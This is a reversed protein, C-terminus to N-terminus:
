ITQKICDDETAKSYGIYLYVSNEEQANNFNEKEWSYLQIHEYYTGKHSLFELTAKFCLFFLNHNKLFPALFEVRWGGLHLGFQFQHDMPRLLYTGDRVYVQVPPHGLAIIQWM